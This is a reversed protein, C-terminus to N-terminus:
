IEPAPSDWPKHERDLIPPGSVALRRENEELLNTNSLSVISKICPKMRYLLYDPATMDKIHQIKPQREVAM